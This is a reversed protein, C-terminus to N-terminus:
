FWFRLGIDGQWGGGFKVKDNDEWGGYDYVDGGYFIIGLSPAFDFFFELFEVPQWSLGIPVRVGLGLATQSYKKSAYTYSWTTFDFYGGVGFFWGLGAGSVLTQDILYYDGTVGLGFGDKPFDFNIGWFVPVSPAKLSLALGGLSGGGTWAGGYQGVIGVGWGSPHDAFAGATCLVLGLLVLLGLKKM